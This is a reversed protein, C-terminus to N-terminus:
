GDVLLGRGFTFADALVREPGTLPHWTVLGHRELIWLRGTDDFALAVPDSLLTPGLLRDVLAGTRPDLRLVQQGFWDVLYVLGEPGLALGTADQLVGGPPLWTQTREGRVVDWVQVMGVEATGASTAVLLRGDPLALLGHGDRIEPPAGGGLEDVAGDPRLLLVNRTDNGLVALGGDVLTLACPEELRAGAGPDFAVGGPAGSEGDFSLVRGSGMDTVLLEDGTWALGAPALGDPSLPEPVEGADVLVEVTGRAPHVALVQGAAVDAVLLRLAPDGDAAPAACGMPVGLSLLIVLLGRM